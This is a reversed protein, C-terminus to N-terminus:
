SLREFRLQTVAIDQTASTCVVVSLNYLHSLSPVSASLRRGILPRCRLGQGILPRCYVANFNLLLDLVRTHFVQHIYLCNCFYVCNMFHGLVHYCLGYYMYSLNKESFQTTQKKVNLVQACKHLHVITWLM